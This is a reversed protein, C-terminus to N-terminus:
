RQEAPDAVGGSTQAAVVAVDCLGCLMGAARPLGDVVVGVLDLLGDGISVERARATLLQEALNGQEALFVLFEPIGVDLGDVEGLV